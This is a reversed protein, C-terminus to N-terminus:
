HTPSFITRIIGLGITKCAVVTRQHPALAAVAEVDVADHLPQAGLLRLVEAGHAALLPLEFLSSAWFTSCCFNVIAAKGLLSGWVLNSYQIYM